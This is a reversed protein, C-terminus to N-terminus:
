EDIFVSIKFRKYIYSSSMMKSVCQDFSEKFYFSELSNDSLRTKIIWSYKKFIQM